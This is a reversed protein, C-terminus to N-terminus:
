RGASVAAASEAARLLEEFLTQKVAEPAFAGRIANETLQVIEDDTLAFHRAALSMERGISTDFMSPDDTNITVPVGEEIFRRLPYDEIREILGTALNSTLCAEVTTHREALLRVVEIDRAASAGHGIREAGLQEVADRVSEPGVSEGAHATLHLGLDRAERYVDAFLRAPGRVEDGGIGFAVAGQERFRAAYRMVERVHEVGFQRVADFIWAARLGLKDSAEKTAEAVAEFVADLSQKKWLVVGASITVEAYRVNEASLDEMLRTSALAYDAPTELLLSLLKFANLFDGFQPYRFGQQERERIWNETEDLLRRKRQAIERLTAPRISGELHLHLEVKPLRQILPEPDSPHPM